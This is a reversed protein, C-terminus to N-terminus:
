PVCIGRQGWDDTRGSPVKLLIAPGRPDGNFVPTVNYPALLAIIRDQYNCEKCLGSKLMHSRHALIQCRPCETVKREGNDFPFDGNCQGEAWRHLTAEYRMLKRAVDLPIGEQAMTHIFQERHLRKNYPM